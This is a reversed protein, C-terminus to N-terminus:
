ASKIAAKCFDQIQKASAITQEDIQFFHSNFSLFATKLQAAKTM